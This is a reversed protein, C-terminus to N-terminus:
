RPRGPGDTVRDRLTALSGEVQGLRRAYEEVRIAVERDRSDLRQENRSIRERIMAVDKLLDEGGDDLRDLRETFGDITEKRFMLSEAGPDGGSERTPLVDFFAASATAVAVVVGAIGVGAAKSM